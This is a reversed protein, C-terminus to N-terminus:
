LKGNLLKEALRLDEITDININPKNNIIFGAKNGLLVKKDLLFDKKIAYAIGNRIFTSRLEQRRIIENGKDTFYILSKNKSIRLQKDPHFKVDVKDLTWLTEYDFDIMKKIVQNIDDIKRAPCTPQLMIIVDFNVNAKKETETVGHVLVPIDGVKDGSLHKPRKFYKKLGFKLGEELIEDHDSSIIAQDIYSAGNYIPMGISIKPNSM